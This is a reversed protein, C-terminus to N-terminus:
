PAGERRVWRAEADSVHWAGPPVTPMMLGTTAHGLGMAHGLEHAIVGADCSSVVIRAARITPYEFSDLWTRGTVHKAPREGLHLEITGWGQADISPAIADVARLTLYDVGVEDRWFALAQSTTDVCDQARVDVDGDFTCVFGFECVPHADLACAALMLALLTLAARMM